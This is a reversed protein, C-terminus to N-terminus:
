SKFVNNYTDLVITILIALCKLQENRLGGKNPIFHHVNNYVDELYSLFYTNHCRESFIKYLGYLTLNGDTVEAEGIDKAMRHVSPREKLGNNYRKKGLMEGIKVVSKEGKLEEPNITLGLYEEIHNPNKLLYLLEILQELMDRIILDGYKQYFKDDETHESLFLVDETFSKIFNVKILCINIKDTGLSANFEQVSSEVARVLAEILEIDIVKMVMVLHIRKASVVFKTSLEM